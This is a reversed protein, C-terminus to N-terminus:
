LQRWRDPPGCNEAVIRKMDPLSSDLTASVFQLDAIEAAAPNGMIFRQRLQEADRDIILFRPTQELGM